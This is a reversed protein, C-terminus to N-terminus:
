IVLSQHRVYLACVASPPPSPAADAFAGPAATAAERAAPLAGACPAPPSPPPVPEGRVAAPVKCNCGERPGDKDTPGPAPAHLAKAVAGELARALDCLCVDHPQVLARPTLLVVLFRALSRM